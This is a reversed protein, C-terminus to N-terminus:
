KKLGLAKEIKALLLQYHAKLAPSTASTARRQVIPHLKNLAVQYYVDSKDLLNVNFTPYPNSAPSGFAAEDQVFAEAPAQLLQAKLGDPAYGLREIVSLYVSAADNEYGRLGQPLTPTAKDTGGTVIANAQNVFSHEMLQEAHTPTRGALTSAFVNQYLDDFYEGLTYSKSDLHEAMIVRARLNLLDTIIFEMLQDYYSISMYGKREAARDAHRTFTKAENLAWLFAQRQRAKPLVQYRPIGSNEKSINVVTGGVLNMVNKLYRHYQQAIVLDLAAKKRSDEDNTVWKSLNRQIGELNKMGYQAAKIPDDGLDEAVVTPDIQRPQQRMFRLYPQKAKKDTWYEISKTEKDFDDEYQPYYRYNWEIAYLDYVGLEPPSLSVGRDSPQAVYNYRAYDMISATTGYKQTFTKSRLSDTPFAASAAMNHELGLTHGVEHAVVYALSQHMLDAPLKDSRVSKDVNATQVFRWKYLLEEVNNYVIVSANIIEGTAPDVWSPGFANEETNPVYRICSYALNDPDFNPDNAPFDKVQVANKFGAKEFAKNWRLVGERLAPKWAEPFTPDLYYVIPNVPETLKGNLYATRDKPVLRWRHALYVNRSRDDSGNIDYKPSSFIGVRADAIRPRMKHEPLLLLSYTVDITTPVDRLLYYVNMLTASLKYNLEVKVSVNNDFAKLQKVFTLESTPTARLSFSGSKAPVVNLSANARGVLATADFLVATSDPTYCEIKFSQFAPDRYNLALVSKERETLGFPFYNANPVKAVISSDQLEFRLSLPTSSKLGVSLYTPDSVSSITAGLLMDRGLYKLPLEFYVKGDTKYLSIFKGKAADYKKNEFFKAYKSKKKEKKSAKHAEPTKNTTKAVATSDPASTTKKDDAAATLSHFAGIVLLTAGLLLTQLPNRM